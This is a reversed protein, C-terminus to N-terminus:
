KFYKLLRDENNIITNYISNIYSMDISESNKDFYNLGYSLNGNDYKVVLIFTKNINYTFIYSIEISIIRDELNDNIEHCYKYSDDFKLSISKDVQSLIKDLEIKLVDAIEHKKM